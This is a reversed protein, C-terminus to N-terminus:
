HGTKLNYFCVVLEYGNREKNLKSETLVAYEAGKESCDKIIIKEAAKDMYTVNRISFRLNYKMEGIKVFNRSSIKNQLMLFHKQDLFKVKDDISGPEARM